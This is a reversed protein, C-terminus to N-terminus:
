FGYNVTIGFQDRNNKFGHKYYGGVGVNDKVNFKLDTNLNQKSIDYTGTYDILGDPTQINHKIKGKEMRERSKQNQKININPSPKFFNHEMIVVTDTVFVTDIIRIPKEEFIYVYKYSPVEVTDHIIEKKIEINKVNNREATKIGCYFTLILIIICVSSILFIYPKKRNEGPM